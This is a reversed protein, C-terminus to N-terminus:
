SHASAHPYKLRIATLAGKYPSSGGGIKQDRYEVGSPLTVTKANNTNKSGEEERKVELRTKIQEGLSGVTLIGLWALGAGISCLSGLLCSTQSPFIFVYGFRRTLFSAVADTSDASRKPSPAAVREEEGDEDLAHVSACRRRSYTTALHRLPQFHWQARHLVTWRVPLVVSPVTTATRIQTM